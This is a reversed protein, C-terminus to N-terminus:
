LAGLLQSCRLSLYGVQFRGTGKERETVTETKPGRNAFSLAETVAILTSLLVQLRFSTLWPPSLSLSLPETM